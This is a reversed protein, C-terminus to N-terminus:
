KYILCSLKEPILIEKAIELLQSNTIVDIKRFVDEITDVKNFLLISKAMTLMLSANSESSIAIQGKIQKKAKEVQEKTLKKETLDRLEKHILELSLELHKKETGFYILFLGTDAFPNYSSEITYVLGHKERLSLNLRSNMNQGALINNLLVMGLRKEDFVSYATNGLVCHIQHTNKRIKKQFPNTGTAIIRKDKRLNEPINGVCHEAISVFSQFSINGVLSLVMENTHYNETIFNKLDKKSFKKVHEPTGLINRGIPHEPFMMEEFDDFIKESPNDEYSLIEDLVVGKEKEIEKTPFTSHFFIDSFLDMAKEFDESLFSAHICTEEKTTYADLDGGNEELCRIIDLSSRTKTGKFLVHEIFHAIGQEQDKEDRSGANILFGLHSVKSNSRMYVLRIGNSLTYTQFREMYINSAFKVFL